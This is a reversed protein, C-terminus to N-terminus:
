RKIILKLTTQDDKTRIKLFYMGPALTRDYHLNLERQAIRTYKRIERGAEDYLEIYMVENYGEDQILVIEGDVVTNYLRIRDKLSIKGDGSTDCQTRAGNLLGPRSNELTARMRAGQGPTFLYMCEDNVYDMFNMFLNSTFCSVQPYTPCGFHPTGQQPTDEVLDDGCGNANKGWLHLLGFYHGVEHTTTRGMNYRGKPDVTGTNGFNTYNIVVGDEDAFFVSEPSTAFGLYEDLRCVWINLYRETPWADAGGLHSHHIRKQGLENTKLGINQFNTSHYTIGSTPRGSPDEGALCFRIGVDEYLRNFEDPLNNPIILASFDANLLEIQSRVQAESIKEYPNNYVVHVVVPIYVQSRQDLGPRGAAKQIEAEFAASRAEYDAIRERAESVILDHGCREQAKLSVIALVAALLTLIYISPRNM